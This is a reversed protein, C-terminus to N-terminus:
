APPHSRGSPKAAVTGLFVGLATTPIDLAVSLLSEWFRDLKNELAPLPPAAAQDVIPDCKQTLMGQDNFVYQCVPVQIPNYHYAAERQNLEVQAVCASIFLMAIAPWGIIFEWDKKPSRHALVGFAFSTILTVVTSIWQM